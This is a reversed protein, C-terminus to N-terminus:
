VRPEPSVPYVIQLRFCKELLAYAKVLSVGHRTISSTFTTVYFHLQGDSMSPLEKLFNLQKRENESFLKEQENFRSFNVTLKSLLGVNLHKYVMGRIEESYDGSFPDELEQQNFRSEISNHLESLKGRMFKSLRGESVLSITSKEGHHSLISFGERELLNFEGKKMARQSVETVLSSVASTLGATLDLDQSETLFNETYFPMGFTNRCIISRISLVDTFRQAIEMDLQKRASIKRQRRRRVRAVAFTFVLPIIAVVFILPLYDEWTINGGSISVIFPQLTSDTAIFTNSGDKAIVTWTFSGSESFTLSALYLSGNFEMPVTEVLISAAQGGQSIFNYELIVETVGSGWDSINAWVLITNDTKQVINSDIIVPGWYTRMSTNGVEIINPESDYIQISYNFTRNCHLHVSYSYDPGNGTLVGIISMWSIGNFYDISIDVGTIPGFPDVADVWFDLRTFSHNILTESYGFDNCIPPTEDPIMEMIWFTTATNNNNDYASIRYNFANGPIFGSVTYTYINESGNWSMTENFISIFVYELSISSHDSPLGSGTSYEVIEAWFTVTGNQFQDIGTKLIKPAAFDGIIITRNKTGLNGENDTTWVEITIEEGFNFTQDFGHFYFSDYNMEYQTTAGQETFNIYFTNNIDRADGYLDNAWTTISIKGDAVTSNEIVFFVEPAVLDSLEIKQYLDPTPEYLNLASDIATVYYWVDHLQFDFNPIQQNYLNQNFNIMSINYWDEFYYQTYFLTVTITNNPWDIVTSNFEVIGNGFERASFSIEPISNDGITHNHEYGWNTNGALDSASIRYVVTDNFTFTYEFEFTIEGIAYMPWSVNVWSGNYISLIIAVSSVNVGSQYDANMEEVRAKFVVFGKEHSSLNYSLDYIIPEVSDQPIIRGFSPSFTDNNVNGVSDVASHISYNLLIGYFAFTEFIWLGSSNLYMNEYTDNIRLVVEQVLSEEDTVNAYFILSGDENDTVNYYYIIPANFDGLTFFKNESVEMNSAIDVASINYVINIGSVPLGQLATDNYYHIGDISVMNYVNNRVITGNSSYRATLSLNVNELNSEDYIDASFTSNSPHYQINLILPVENDKYEDVQVSYYLLTEIDYTREGAVEVLQLEDNIADEYEVTINYYGYPINTFTTYGYSTTNKIWTSSQNRSNTLTVQANSITQNDLDTVEVQLSANGPVDDYLIWSLTKNWRNWGDSTLSNGWNAGWFARREPALSLDWAKKGRDLTLWTGDSLFYGGKKDARVALLDIEVGPPVNSYGKIHHIDYEASYVDFFTDNNLNQSVFHNNNLIYIQTASKLSFQSGLKFDNYYGAQMTLIPITANSLSSVFENGEGISSSIVIADFNEYSLTQIAEFCTVSYSLNITMFDFFPVDKDLNLSENNDVIFLIHPQQFSQISFSRLGSIEESFHNKSDSKLPPLSHGIDSHDNFIDLSNL